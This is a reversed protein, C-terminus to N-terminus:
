VEYATSVRGVVHVGTRLPVGAAFFGPDGTSKRGTRRGKIEDIM